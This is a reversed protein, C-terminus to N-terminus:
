KPPRVNDAAFQFGHKAFDRASFNRNRGAIYQPNPRDRIHDITLPAYFAFEHGAQSARWFYERHEMIPYGPDWPVARFLEARFVGWNLVLDCPRYTIGNPTARLPRESPVVYCRDGRRVFNHGWRVAGRDRETAIGGVGAIRPDHDLIQLAGHLGTVTDPQVVFDEEMVALLETGVRGYLRNRGASLNGNTDEIEVACKPLLAAISARLRSLAEPRKWSTIALTISEIAPSSSPRHNCQACAVAESDASGVPRCKAWTRGPFTCRHMAGLYCDKVHSGLYICPLPIPAPPQVIAPAVIPVERGHHSQVSLRGASRRTASNNEHRCLGCMGDTFPISWGRCQGPAHMM